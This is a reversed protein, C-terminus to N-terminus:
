MLHRVADIINNEKIKVYYRQTTIISKHGLIKSVIDVSVGQEILLMGATKRATYTTISYSTGVIGEFVHCYRNITNIHHNPLKYNYRELLRRLNPFIPVIAREAERNENKGREITLVLSDKDKLTELYHLDCHNISSYAMALFIIRTDELIGTFRVKELISLQERTLYQIPKPKKRKLGDTDLPNTPIIGKSKAWDLVNGLYTVNRVAFDNGIKKKPNRRQPKKVLYLYLQKGFDNRIQNIPIDVGKLFEQLHAKTNYWRGITNRKLENETGNWIEKTQVIYDSYVKLLFPIPVEKQVYMQRIEKATKKPNQRILEVIDSEIQMLVARNTHDLPTAGKITQKAKDWREIPVLIPTSIDSAVVGAVKIRVYVRRENSNVDTRLRFNISYM